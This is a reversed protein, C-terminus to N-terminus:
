SMGSGASGSSQTGFTARSTCTACAMELEKPKPPCFTQRANPASGPQGWGSTRDPDPMSPGAVAAPRRWRPTVPALRSGHGCQTAVPRHDGPM